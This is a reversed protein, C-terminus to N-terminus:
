SVVPKEVTLYSRINDEHGITPLWVGVHCQKAWYRLYCENDLSHWPLTESQESLTARGMWCVIDCCLLTSLSKATLKYTWDEIRCEYQVSSSVSHSFTAAFLQTWQGAVGPLARRHNGWVCLPLYRTGLGSSVMMAGVLCLMGRLTSTDTCLCPSHNMGPTSPAQLNWQRHVLEVRAKHSVALESNPRSEWKRQHVCASITGRQSQAEWPSQRLWWSTRTDWWGCRWSARPVRDPSATGQLWGWSSCISLCGLPFLLTPIM